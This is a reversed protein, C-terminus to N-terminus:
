NGHTKGQKRIIDKTVITVLKYIQNYEGIERRTVKTKSKIFTEFVASWNENANHPTWPNLKNFVKYKPFSREDEDYHTNAVADNCV